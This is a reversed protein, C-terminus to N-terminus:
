METALKRIKHLNELSIDTVKGYFCTQKNKKCFHDNRLNHEVNFYPVIFIKKGNKFIRGNQM